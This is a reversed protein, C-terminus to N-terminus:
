DAIRLYSTNTTAYRVGSALVASGAATDPDPPTGYLFAFAPPKVGTLDEIQRIPTTIEREVDEPTVIAAASAHHATHAAIVHKQAIVALDDWNMAVRDQEREEALITFHNAEAYATQEEPPVDLIGTIPFFWATLGLEDCVPAAVTANNLYSDYFVPIFGPKPLHWRGTEIFRDLDEPLLPHYRDLYWGLEAKLVARQSQPTNHWNVLRLVKGANFAERQYDLTLTDAITM